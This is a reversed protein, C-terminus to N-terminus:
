RFEFRKDRGGGEDVTLNAEYEKASMELGRQVECCFLEVM